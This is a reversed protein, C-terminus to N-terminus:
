LNSYFTKWLKGICYYRHTDDEAPRPTCLTYLASTFPAGTRIIIRLRDRASFKATSWLRITPMIASFSLSVQCPRHLKLYTLVMKNEQYKIKFSLILVSIRSDCKHSLRSTIHLTSFHKNDLDRKGMWRWHCAIFSKQGLCRHQIAHTNM